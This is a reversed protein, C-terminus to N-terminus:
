EQGALLNNLKEGSMEDGITKEACSLNRRKPSQGAGSYTSKMYTYEDPLERLFVPGFKFYKYNSTLSWKIARYLYIMYDSSKVVKLVSSCDPYNDQGFM